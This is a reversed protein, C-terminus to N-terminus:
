ECAATTQNWACPKSKGSLEIIDGQQAWSQKASDYQAIESGEVWYADKNGELNLQIGWLYAAPTM